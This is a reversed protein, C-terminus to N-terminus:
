PVIAFAAPGFTLPAVDTGAKYPQGPTSRDILFLTLPGGPVEPEAFAITSADPSLSFFPSFVSQSGAANLQTAVGPQSRQVIFIDFTGPARSDSTYVIATSDQTYAFAPISRDTAYLPTVQVLSEPHATTTEYLAIGAATIARLTIRLGDPSFVPASFQTGAPFTPGIQTYSGLNDLSSLYAVAAYTSQYGGSETVAAFHGAAAVDFGQIAPGTGAFYAVTPAIAVETGPHSADVAYVGNVNNNRSAQYVIRSADAPARMGSIMGTAVSPSMQVVSSGLNASYITSYSSLDTPEHGIYFVTRDANSFFYDNVQETAFNGSNVQPQAGGYIDRLFLETSNRFGTIGDLPVLASAGNHSLVLPGSGLTGLGTDFPAITKAQLDAAVWGQPGSPPRVNYIMTRGNASLQMTTTSNPAIPLSVVSSRNTDNYIVQQDPGSSTLYVFKQLPRVEITLTAPLSQQNSANTADVAAYTVSTSGAFGSAPTFTISGDANTSATGNTPPSILVSTLTDANAETDNALVRVTVATGPSTRASDPNAVPRYDVRQIAITVTAVTTLGDPDAISVGFSDTGQFHAAPTYAFQGAADPGTLTGDTPATSVAITLPEGQPDSVGLNGSFPQDETATFSASQIIPQLNVQQVTITVPTTASAGATDTIVVQFTDTGHFLHSPRYTFSGTGDPGTLSGHAPSAAVTVSM